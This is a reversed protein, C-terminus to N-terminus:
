RHPIRFHSNPFPFGEIESKPNRFTKVAFLSCLAYPMAGLAFLINQKIRHKVLDAPNYKFKAM